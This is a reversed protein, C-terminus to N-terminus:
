VARSVFASKALEESELPPPTPTGCFKTKVALLKGLVREGSGTGRAPELTESATVFSLVRRLNERRVM